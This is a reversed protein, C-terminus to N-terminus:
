IEDTSHSPLSPCELDGSSDFVQAIVQDPSIILWVIELSVFWIRQIWVRPWTWHVTVSDKRTLKSISSVLIILAPLKGEPRRYNSILIGVVGCCYLSTL